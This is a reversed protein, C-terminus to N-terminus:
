RFILNWSWIDLLPCGLQLPSLLLYDIIGLWKDSIVKQIIKEREFLENLTTELVYSEIDEFNEEMLEEIIRNRTEEPIKM